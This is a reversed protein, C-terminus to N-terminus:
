HQLQHNQKQIWQIQYVKFLVINKEFFLKLFLLLLLLFFKITDVVIPENQIYLKLNETSTTQPYGYDLVEDLLEYILSFNKRISEESLIGCYDKIVKSIRNLLEIFLAPSVNFKTMCVFLLGNRNKKLNWNIKKKFFKKVHIFNIGDIIFCPPAENGEGKWFKVKM